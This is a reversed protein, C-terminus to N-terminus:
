LHDIKELKISIVAYKNVFNFCEYFTLNLNQKQIKPIETLLFNSCYWIFCNMMFVLKQFYDKKRFHIIRLPLCCLDCTHSVLTCFKWVNCFSWVCVSVCVCVCVCVCLCVCVCARRCNLVTSCAYHFGLHWFVCLYPHWFRWHSPISM